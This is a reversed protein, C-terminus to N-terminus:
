WGVVRRRRRMLKEELEVARQELADVAENVWVLFRDVTILMDRERFLVLQRQRIVEEEEMVAAVFEPDDPVEETRLIFLSQMDQMTPWLEAM